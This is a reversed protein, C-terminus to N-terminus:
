REGTRVGVIRDRYLLVVREFRRAGTKYHWREVRVRKQDGQLWLTEHGSDRRLPEGCRAVLEERTDGSHVVKRGCRFNDAPALAPLIAGAIVCLLVVGTRRKKDGGNM